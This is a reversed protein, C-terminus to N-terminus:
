KIISFSGVLCQIKSFASAVWVFLQLPSHYSFCIFAMSIFCCLSIGSSHFFFFAIMSSFIIDLASSFVRAASHSCKAQVSIVDTWLPLSYFAFIGGSYPNNRVLGIIRSPFLLFAAGWCCEPPGAPIFLHCVIQVQLYKPALLCLNTDEASCNSSCMLLKDSWLVLLVERTEPEVSVLIESMCSHSSLSCPPFFPPLLSTSLNKALETLM